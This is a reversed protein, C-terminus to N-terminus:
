PNQLRIDRLLRVQEGTLGDKPKPPNEIGLRMRLNRAGLSVSKRSISFVEAVERMSMRRESRGGSGQLSLYAAGAAHHSPNIPLPISVLRVAEERARASVPWTQFRRELIAKADPRVRPFLGRKRVENLLRNAVRVETGVGQLLVVDEMRRPTNDTLAALFAAVAIVSRLGRGGLHFREDISRYYYGKAVGFANMGLGLKDCLEALAELGQDRARRAGTKTLTMRTMVSQGTEDYEFPSGGEVAGQEM